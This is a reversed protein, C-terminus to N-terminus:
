IVVLSNIKNDPSQQLGLGHYTYSADFEIFVTDDDHFSSEFYECNSSSIEFDIM